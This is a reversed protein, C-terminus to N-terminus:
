SVLSNILLPFYLYILSHTRVQYKEDYHQELAFSVNSPILDNMPFIDKVDDADANFKPLLTERFLQLADKGADLIPTDTYQSVMVNSLVKNGAINESLILNSEQAKVARKKKSSGFEETLSARREDNTMTSLKLPIPYFDEDIFSPKMISIGDTPLLLLENKKKNMIGILYNCDNASDGTTEYKVNNLNSVISNRKRKINMDDGHDPVGDPFSLVSGVAASVRLQLSM